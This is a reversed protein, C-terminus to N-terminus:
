FDRLLKKNQKWLYRSILQNSPRFTGWLHDWFLLSFLDWMQRGDDDDDDDRSTIENQRHHRSSSVKIQHGDCKIPKGWIFEDEFSCDGHSQTRNLSVKVNKIVYQSQKQQWISLGSPVDRAHLKRWLEKKMRKGFEEEKIERPACHQKETASDSWAKREMGRRGKM